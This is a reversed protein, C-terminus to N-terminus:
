NTRDNKVKVPNSQRETSAKTEGEVLEYIIENIKEKYSILGNKIIESVEKETMGLFNAIASTSFYKGDIYGFKLSLIVCDLMPKSKTMEIFERNNFIELIKIYEEESITNNNSELEKSDVKNEESISNDDSMEEINPLSDKLEDLNNKERNSLLAKKIKLIIYNFKGYEKSTLSTNQIPNLIDPGYKKHLIDLESASLKEIVKQIEGSSYESFYACLNNRNKNVQKKSKDNYQNNQM